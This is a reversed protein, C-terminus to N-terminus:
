RASNAYAGRGVLDSSVGRAFECLHAGRNAHAVEALIVRWGGAADLRMHADQGPALQNLAGLDANEADVVFGSRGDLLM